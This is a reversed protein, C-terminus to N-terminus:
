RQLSAAEEPNAVVVPSLGSKRRKPDNQGQANWVQLRAEPFEASPGALLPESQAKLTKEFFALTYHNIVEVARYTSIRGAGTLLKLPSFLPSDSYNRHTTGLIVMRYGGSRRLSTEMLAAQAYGFVAARRQRADISPLKTKSPLTADEMMFFVPCPSGERASEGAVMGDMDLAAKFRVDLWCAQAAVSGGLSHGFIGVQELNLRDTLLGEPDYRNLEELEDLVFRADEARVRVQQEAERVFQEFAQQSSYDEGPGLKTRVIRGDPLVTVSTGYPHDMAVVIYGYSALEEVQVTNQVRQGSWSPSFVLVPFSTQTAAMPASLYAHTKVLALQVTRWNTTQKERYSAFQGHFSQDVPYWIQIMLERPDSSDNSLAERRNADVLHRVETGVQFPGTPKPFEFVPLLVSLGLAGLWVILALVGVSFLPRGFRMWIIAEYLVLAIILVYAPLMQWRYGETRLHVLGVLVALFPLLHISFGYERGPTLFRLVPVLLIVMVILETTRM